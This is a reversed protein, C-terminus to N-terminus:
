REPLGLARQALHLSDLSTVEAFGPDEVGSAAM